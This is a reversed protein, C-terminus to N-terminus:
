LDADDGYHVVQGPKSWNDPDLANKLNEQFRLAQEQGASSDYFQNIRNRTDAFKWQEEGQNLNEGVVAGGTLPRPQSTSYTIERPTPASIDGDPQILHDGRQTTAALADNKPNSSMNNNRAQQYNGLKGLERVKRDPNDTPRGAIENRNKWEDDARKKEEEPDPQPEAEHHGSKKKDHAEKKHDQMLVRKRAKAVPTPTDEVAKAEESTMHNNPMGDKEFSTVGNAKDMVEGRKMNFLERFTMDMINKGADEDMGTLEAAEKVGEAHAHMEEPDKQLLILFLEGAHVKEERAIDNFVTKVDEDDSDDAMSEYENAAREEQATLERIREDDEDVDDHHYEFGDDHECTM